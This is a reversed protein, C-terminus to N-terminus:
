AAEAQSPMGVWLGKSVTQNIFCRPSDTFKGLNTSDDKTFLNHMNKEEEEEWIM